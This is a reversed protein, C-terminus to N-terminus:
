IRDEPALLANIADLDVSRGTNGLPISVKATEEVAKGSNGGSAVKAATRAVRAEESTRLAVRKRARQETESVTRSAVRLYLEELAQLREPVTADQLLRNLTPWKSAEEGLAQQVEPKSLDPYKEKLAAMGQNLDQEPQTQQAQGAQLLMLQTSKLTAFTEMGVPDIQGWAMMARTFTEEDEREFAQEAINRYTPVAEEATAFEDPWAIPELPRQTVLTKLEELQRRLEGMENGQRGILSQGEAAAKLAKNLDGDYKALFQEVEPTVDLYISDDEEAVGPVEEPEEEGGEEAVEPEGDPAEGDAVEEVEDQEEAVTDAEPAPTEIQQGQTLHDRIFDMEGNEQMQQLVLDEELAM